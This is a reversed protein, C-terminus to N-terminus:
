LAVLTTPTAIFVVGSQSPSSKAPPHAKQRERNRQGAARDEARHNGKQKRVAMEQWGEVKGTERQQQQDEGTM